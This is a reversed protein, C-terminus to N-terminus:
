ALSLEGLGQSRSDPHREIPELNLRLTTLDPAEEDRPLLADVGSGAM